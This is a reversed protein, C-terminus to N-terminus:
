HSFRGQWGNLDPKLLDVAGATKYPELRQWPPSQPAAWMGLKAGRAATTTAPSPAATAHDERILNSNADYLNISGTGTGDRAFLARGAQDYATNSGSGALPSKRKLCAGGLIALEAL